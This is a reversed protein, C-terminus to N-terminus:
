EGTTTEDTAPLVITSLGSQSSEYIIDQLSRGFYNLLYTMGYEILTGEVATIAYEVKM